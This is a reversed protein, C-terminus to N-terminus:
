MGKSRNYTIWKKEFNFKQALLFDHVKTKERRDRQMFFISSLTLMTATQLCRCAHWRRTTYSPTRFTLVPSHKINWFIRRRSVVFPNQCYIASNGATRWHWHLQPCGTWTRSKTRLMKHWTRKLGCKHM